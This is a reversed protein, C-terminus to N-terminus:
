SELPKLLKSPKDYTSNERMLETFRRKRADGVVQGRFHALLDGVKIGEPPIYARLEEATPFHDITHTLRRSQCEPGLRLFIFCLASLNLSPLCYGPSEYLSFSKGAALAPGVPANGVPINSIPPNGVPVNGVATKGGPVNGVAGNGVAGNGVPINGKGVSANGKGKGATDGSWPAPSGVRSVLPTVNKSGSKSFKLMLKKRAGDTGEGGSGATDRESGSGAHSRPRKGDARPNSPKLTDAPLTAASPKRSNAPTSRTPESTTASLSPQSAPPSSPRSPPNTPPQSPPLHQKKHKKRPTETGSVESVNPSGSRKLTDSSTKTPGQVKTSGNAGTTVDKASTGSSHPTSTTKGKEPDSPIPRKEEEKKREEEKLRETETDDSESQAMM